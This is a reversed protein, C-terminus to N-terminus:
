QKTQWEKIKLNAKFTLEAIDLNPSNIKHNGPLENFNEPESALIKPEGQKIYCYFTKQTM